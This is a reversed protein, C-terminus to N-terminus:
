PLEQWPALGAAAASAGGHYGAMAAVDRAWMQEYLGEIHAIAPANLGFWNSLVMQVLANRNAAVAAPVVTAARAAEFVGAVTRAQGAAAVAQTAAASM